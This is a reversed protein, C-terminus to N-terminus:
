YFNKNIKGQNKLLIKNFEDIMKATSSNIEAFYYDINKSALNALLKDIKLGRPDGDPYQDNSGNHFDRGHCPADCIHFLVRTM